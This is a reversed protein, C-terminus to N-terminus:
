LRDEDFEPAFGAIERASPRLLSQSRFQLCALSQAFVVVVPSFQGKTGPLTYM